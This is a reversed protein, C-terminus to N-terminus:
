RAGGGGPRGGAVRAERGPIGSPPALAGPPSNLTASPRACRGGARARLREPLWEGLSAAAHRCQLSLVEPVGDREGRVPRLVVQCPPHTSGREPRQKGLVLLLM